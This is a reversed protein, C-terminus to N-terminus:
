NKSHYEMVTVVFTEGNILHAFLTKPKEDNVYIINKIEIFREPLFKGIEHIFDTATIETKEKEELINIERKKSPM